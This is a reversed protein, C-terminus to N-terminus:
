RHQAFLWCPLEPDAFAQDWCDHGVGPLEEYHFSGGAAELARAMKRSESVPVVPDDAGHVIRTPVTHIREALGAYPDPAQPFLAPASPRAGIFGCVVVAAAFRGPHNSLLYWAGNGGLSLGALYIRDRDVALRRTTAELTAMTLDAGRGQWNTDKAIQPFLVVAPYREPMYRLAPGLGVATPKVGDNGREGSGHLFLILPWSWDPAYGPPLYLRFDHRTGDFAIAGPQFVGAKPSM